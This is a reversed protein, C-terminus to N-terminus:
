SSATTLFGQETFAISVNHRDFRPIPESIVEDLISHLEAIPDQAVQIRGTRYIRDKMIKAATTTPFLSFFRGQDLDHLVDQKQPDIWSQLTSGLQGRLCREVDHNLDQLMRSLSLADEHFSTKLNQLKELLANVEERVTATQGKLSDANKMAQVPTLGLRQLGIPSASELESLDRDLQEKHDIKQQLSRQTEDIAARNTVMRDRGSKLLAITKDIKQELDNLKM